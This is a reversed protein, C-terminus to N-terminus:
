RRMLIRHAAVAAGFGNDINMVCVGAACTNLMSMLAAVGGLGTGYGVSTPVAIVPQSVLGGVVSALAGEMGAIVIVVEAAQVDALREMLRHVGAVGVDDICVLDHGLFACTNAAERAVPQDSTGASVISILKHSRALSGMSFTHAVPDYSGTPHSRLVLKATLEGVGTALAHGNTRLLTDMAGLTQEASKNRAFVVEPFGQRQERGGDINLASNM